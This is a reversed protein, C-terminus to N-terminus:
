PMRPEDSTCGAAPSTMRAPKLTPSPANASARIARPTPMLLQHTGAAQSVLQEYGPYPDPIRRGHNVTICDVHCDIACLRCSHCENPSPDGAELGAPRVSEM